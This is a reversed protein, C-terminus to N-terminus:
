VFACLMNVGANVVQSRGAGPLLRWHLLVMKGSWLVGTGVSGCRCDGAGWWGRTTLSRLDQGHRCDWVRRDAGAAAAEPGGGCCM